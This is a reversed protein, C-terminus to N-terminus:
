ASSVRSAAPENRALHERLLDDVVEPRHITVGHGADAIAVFRAGPIAAALERGFAPLAIRDGEAAVVLTPVDLSALRDRADYRGLARLQKMAIAPQDALDHGFLPELERAYADVDPLADLHAGPMVLELFARRRMRRTGIRTKLGAVLIDSSLRAGQSGRAFTCMLALSKVRAPARLAVEQAIVGGLSHGGLHFRDIGEADMVALADAAMAEVSLPAGKAMTSGGIGRNDLTVVTYADSLAAVQPRWGEGVIGVGQVLLLAPGRGTRTYAIRAGDTELLPM